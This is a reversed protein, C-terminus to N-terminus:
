RFGRCERISQNDALRECIAAAVDHTRWRWARIQGTQTGTLLWRGEASLAMATVPAAHELRALEQLSEGRQLAPVPGWVHVTKDARGLLFLGDLAFRLESAGIASEVHLSPRPEHGRQWAAMDMPWFSISGANDGVAVWEGDPSVDLATVIAGIRMDGAQTWPGRGSPSLAWLHVGGTVGGAVFFRADPTFAMKWLLHRPPTALVPETVPLEGAAPLGWLRMVGGSASALWRGDPSFRVDEVWIDHPLMAVEDWTEGDERIRLLRATCDTSASALWRSDPSFAVRLAQASH